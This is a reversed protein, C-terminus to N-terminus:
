QLPSRPLLPSSTLQCSESLNIGLHTHTDHPSFTGDLHGHKEGVIKAAKAISDDSDVDLELTELTTNEAFKTVTAAAEKGKTLSRSCLIIHYNAYGAALQKVCELGLGQNAGTILVITKSM